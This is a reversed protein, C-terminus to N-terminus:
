RPPPPPRRGRRRRRRRPTASPESGPEAYPSEDGDDRAASAELPGDDLDEDLQEDFGPDADRRRPRAEDHRRPQGRKPNLIRAGARITGMAADALDAVADAKAHVRGMLDGFDDIRDAIGSVSDRVRGTAEALADAADVADRRVVDTLLRVNEAAATASAIMPDVKSSLRALQEHMAQQARWMRYFILALIIVVALTIIQALGAAVFVANDFATRVPPVQRVLITDAVAQLYHLTM